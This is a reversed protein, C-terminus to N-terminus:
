SGVSLRAFRAVGVGAEKLLQEVTMKGQPDRVYLQKILCVDQYFKGLKGDAIKDIMAEPKGAAAAEARYIEKEKAIVEAPVDAPVLYQPRSAVIQMGLNKGLEAVDKGAVGALESVGVATNNTHIYWALANEPKEVQWVLAQGIKISEGIKAIAEALLDGVTKSPDATFKEGALKEVDVVGTKNVHEALQQAMKRFDDNKAVFDTECSLEVFAAKKGGPALCAGIYGAKTAREARKAAKSLGKKRLWEVAQEMDGGTEGLAKKCDMMGAGTKERLDKVMNAKIEM